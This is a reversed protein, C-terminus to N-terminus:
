VKDFIQTMDANDSFQVTVSVVNDLYVKPISRENLKVAVNFVENMTITSPFSKQM